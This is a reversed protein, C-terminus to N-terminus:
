WARGGVNVLKVCSQPVTLGSLKIVRHGGIQISTVSESLKMVERLKVNVGPPFHLCLCWLPMVGKVVAPPKSGVVKRGSEVLLAWAAFQSGFCTLSCFHKKGDM